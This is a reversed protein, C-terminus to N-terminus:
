ALYVADNAIGCTNLGRQFFIYGDMGYDTGWSNRVVYFETGSSQFVSMGTVVVCHNIEAGSCDATGNLVGNYVGSAFSSFGQGGADICVSVLGRQAATFVATENGKPIEVITGLHVSRSCNKSLAEDCPRDQGDVILTPYDDETCVGANNLVYNLTDVPWGGECGQNYREVTCEAMQQMSLHTLNGHYKDGYETAFKAEVLTGASYAWCSGCMGQSRIPTEQDQMRWDVNNIGLDQEGHYPRRATLRNGKYCPLGFHEHREKDDLDHHARIVATYTSDPRINHDNVLALNQCFINCRTENHIPKDFRIRFDTYEELCPCSSPASFCFTFFLSLMAQTM